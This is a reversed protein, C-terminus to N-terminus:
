HELSAKIALVDAETLKSIRVVKEVSDGEALMKAAMERAKNDAGETRGEELGEARAHKKEVYLEYERDSMKMAESILFEETFKSLEAKKQLLSFPSGEPVPVSSENNLGDFIRLWQAFRSNDAEFGGKLFKPIEVLTITQKKYFEENDQNKLRITHVYNKWEPFGVFMQLSILNLSKLNYPHGKALSAVTHKSAYYVLRSNFSEDEIHQVELVIRDTRQDEAVIDSFSSKTITGPLEKNVFTLHEICDSGYLHLAANFFDVAISENEPVGLLLKIVADNYIYVYKYREKYKAICASVDGGQKHTDSIEKLMGAYQEKNM